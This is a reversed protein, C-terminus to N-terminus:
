GAPSWASIDSRLRTAQPSETRHAADGADRPAADLVEPAERMMGRAVDFTAIRARLDANGPHSAAHRENVDRLM